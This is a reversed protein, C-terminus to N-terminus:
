SHNDNEIIVKGGEIKLKNLVFLRIGESYIKQEAWQTREKLKEIDDNSYVTIAKQLIIPGTDKGKDVFHLTCGSIKCGSDLIQKYVQKELGPFSPLLSPHINMIRNKYENVFLPTLINMYGVLTILNVNYLNLTELLKNDYEERNLGESSLYHNDIGFSDAKKLIGANERNSLVVSIKALGKLKGYNISGIISPLDSGKTSGLVGINIM